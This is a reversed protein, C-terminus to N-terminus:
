LDVAAEKCLGSHTNRWQVRKEHTKRMVFRTFGKERLAGLFEHRAKRIWPPIVRVSGPDSSLVALVSGVLMGRVVRLLEVLPGPSFSGRADIEQEITVDIREPMVIM